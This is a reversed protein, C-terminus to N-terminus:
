RLLFWGVTTSGDNWTATVFYYHGAVFGSPSTDLGYAYNGGTSYKFVNTGSFVVVPPAVGTTGRGVVVLNGKGTTVPAGQPTTLGCKVPLNSGKRQASRTPPMVNYIPTSFCNVQVYGAVTLAGNELTMSYNLPSSPSVVPTTTYLGAVTIAPVSTTCTVTGADPALLGTVTCPMSPVAAGFNMTASGATALASRQLIAFAQSNSSALWNDGGAYAGTATYNGANRPASAVFTVDVSESLSPGSVSATCPTQVSASYAVSAPCSMAVSTAAKAITFTTSAESARYNNSGAYSASASAAGAAVNNAYVPTLTASLGGVGSVSADCPTLASGTFTESTPCSLTIASAARTITFTASGNSGFYNGGTAYAATATATGANVNDSYAVPTGTNLAGAGTTTASCPSLASGTFTLSTPECTVVTATAAPTIAFTASGSAASYNGSAALSVSATATGVTTNNAYTPPPTLSLGPATATASCPTQATGDYVVSESCTVVVTPAAPTISIAATAWVTNYVNSGEGCTVTLTYAGVDVPADTSSYSLTPTLDNSCSGSGAHAENDFVFSGGTAAATPTIKLATASFRLRAPRFTVGAPADGGASPIATAYNIGGEPGLIWCIGVRGTNDTTTSAAQGFEGCTQSAVTSPAITGGGATVAWAVPVGKLITGNATTITVSPRCAVSLATGVTVGCEDIAVAEVSARGGTVAAIGTSTNPKVSNVRGNPVAAVRTRSPDTPQARLFETASGGVGGGAFGLETDVAGFPSFETASGGVGGGGFAAYLLKPTFLSALKSAWSPLVSATEAACSLFSADAPPAIEFGAAAQHGLRLRARVDPDIAGLPCVAVVAPKTLNSSATISVYSPYQDLLTILPSPGSPDLTTLTLLTPQTVTNGDLSIGSTGENSVRVQPADSPLILFTNPSLGAYCLVGSIFETVQAQTGLLQGQAAKDRVFRVINNAQEQANALDGAEVKKRLNDLKGLVSNVNPSGAGFLPAALAKLADITTCTGMVNLQAGPFAPSTPGIIRSSDSCATITAASLVAALAVKRVTNM